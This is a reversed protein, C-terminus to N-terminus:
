RTSAARGLDGGPPLRAVVRGSVPRHALRWAAPQLYDWLLQASVEPRHRGIADPQLSREEAGAPRLDVRGTHDRARACGPAPFTEIQPRRRPRSLRRAGCDHAFAFVTQRGPSRRPGHHIRDDERGGRGARRRRVCWPSPRRDRGCRCIIPAARRRHGSRELRAEAIRRM